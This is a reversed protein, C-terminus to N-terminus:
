KGTAPSVRARAIPLPHIHHSWEAIRKYGHEALVLDARRVLEGWALKPSAGRWSLGLRAEVLPHDDQGVRVVIPVTEGWGSGAVICVPLEVNHLRRRTRIRGTCLQIV